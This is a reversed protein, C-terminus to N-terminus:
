ASYTKQAYKDWECSFVCETNDDEFGKRIGGIGAFLDIFKLPESSISSNAEQIARVIRKARSTVAYNGRKGILSIFGLTELDKLIEGVKNKSIGIEKSIDEQKICFFSEEGQLCVFNELVTYYPNLFLDIEM